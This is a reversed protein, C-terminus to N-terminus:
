SCFRELSPDAAATSSAARPMKMGSPRRAPYEAVPREVGPHYCGRGIITELLPYHCGCVCRAASLLAFDGTKYRILPMGFNALDTVVLEGVQGPSVPIGDHLIEVVLTDLNLHLGRHEPCESAILGVEPAEHQVTMRCGFLSEIELRELDDMFIATSIVGRPRIDELGLRRLFRAFLLLDSPHGCLLTPRQRRIERYFRLMAAEDMPLTDPTICRELLLNRMNRRWDQRRRPHDCISAVKEGLRWGARQRYADANARKLWSGAEDVVLQPTSGTHHILSPSLTSPSAIISQRHALVDERTLFPLRRLDKWELFDAPPMGCSRLREAHFPSYRCAHVLLKQLRQLQDRRTEEVTRSHAKEFRLLYEKYPIGERWAWLPAVVKRVFGSFLDGAFTEAQM